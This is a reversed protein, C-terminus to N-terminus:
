CKHRSWTASTLDWVCVAEDGSIILNNITVKKLYKLFTPVNIVPPWSLSKQQKVVKWLKKAFEPLPNFVRSIVFIETLSKPLLLYLIHVLLQEFLWPRRQSKEVCVACCRLVSRLLHPVVAKKMHIGGAVVMQKRNWITGCPIGNRTSNGLTFPLVQVDKRHCVPLPHRFHAHRTVM